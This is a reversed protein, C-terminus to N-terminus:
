FKFNGRCTEEKCNKKSIKSTLKQNKPPELVRTQNLTKAISMNPLLTESFLQACRNWLNQDNILESDKVESAAKAMILGDSVRPDISDSEGLKVFSQILNLVAPKLPEDNKITKEIRILSSITAAQIIWSTSNQNTRYNINYNLMDIVGGLNQISQCPRFSKNCLQTGQDASRKDTVLASRKILSTRGHSVIFCESQASLYNEAWTRGDMKEDQIFEQLVNLATGDKVALVGLIGITYLKDMLPFQSNGRREDDMKLTKSFIHWDDPTLKHDFRRYLDIAQYLSPAIDRILKAHINVDDILLEDLVEAQSSKSKNTKNSNKPEHEDTTLRALENKVESIVKICYAADPYNRYLELTKEDVM